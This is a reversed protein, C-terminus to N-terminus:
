SNIFPGGMMDEKLKTTKKNMQKKLLAARKKEKSIDRKWDRNYFETGSIGGYWGGDETMKKIRKMTHDYLDAAAEPSLDLIDDFESSELVLIENLKM